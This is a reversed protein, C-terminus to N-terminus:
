FVFSPQDHVFGEESFPCVIAPRELGTTRCTDAIKTAKPTTSAKRTGRQGTCASETKSKTELQHLKSQSNTGRACGSRRVTRAGKASGERQSDRGGLANDKNRTRKEVPEIDFNDRQHQTQIRAVSNQAVVPGGGPAGADCTRKRM